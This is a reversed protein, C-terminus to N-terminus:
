IKDCFDSNTIKVLKYRDAAGSLILIDKERVIFLKALFRILERNARGGEPASAIDIKITEDAMIERFASKTAGPRVKIRLVIEGNKLLKEKQLEM